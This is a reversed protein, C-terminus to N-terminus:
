DEGRPWGKKPTWGIIRSFLEFGALILICVIPMVWKM